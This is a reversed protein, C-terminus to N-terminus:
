TYEKRLTELSIFHPDFDGDCVNHLHVIGRWHKNGQPGKYAEDHLYCSGATIGWQTRGDLLTRNAVSLVQKHGEIFSKGVKALINQAVGGYPKGTMPASFYHTYSVGDIEVVELFPHVEMGYEKYGLDDISLVGELEPSNNAARDIRDEHNGLTMVIRPRYRSKKNEKRRENYENIPAFFLDLGERCADVDKKYRRGEFSKKGKDYSSLSEMDAFDGIFVIVEPKNDIVYQGLWSLYSIDVGPRVQCDPIFLHDTM